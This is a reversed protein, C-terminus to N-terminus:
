NGWFKIISGTRRFEGVLLKSSSTLPIKNLFFPEVKREKGVRSTMIRGACFTHM